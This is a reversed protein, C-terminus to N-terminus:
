DEAITTITMTQNHLDAFPSTESPAIEGYSYFGTLRCPAGLIEAVAEVEDATRQGLLLKRGICSVLIALRAGPIAAHRAARGAGAILDDFHGLMVQAVHGKPVSGAFIMAKRAEDIGVVTRVLAADPEGKPYVRLPFLLASSPLNAAEAGLYHKYLDLAPQGDLDFLTNDASRTIVRESGVAHWGGVSGWGLRIASGYFGVAAIRNPEPNVDLGVRTAVFNAGDGALGGTLAIGRGLVQQIGKVLETGNVKVGDSLVFLGRLGPRPLAAALAAGAAFSTRDQTMTEIATAIQTGAFEIATAVLSGDDVDSGAIEGGTTCGLISGAPYFRRLEAFRAGDDLVGPAAFFLVLTPRLAGDTSLLQWGRAATWIRQELRM